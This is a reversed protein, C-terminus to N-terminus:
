NGKAFITMINPLALYDESFKTKLVENKSFLSNLGRLYGVKSENGIESTNWIQVKVFFYFNQFFYNYIFM